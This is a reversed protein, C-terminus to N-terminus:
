GSEKEKSQQKNCVKQTSTVDRNSFGFPARYMRIFFLYRNSNFTVIAIVDGYRRFGFLTIDFVGIFDFQRLTFKDFFFVDFVDDNVTVTRDEIFDLVARFGGLVGDKPLRDQFM